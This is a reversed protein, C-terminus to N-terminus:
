GGTTTNSASNNDEDDPMYVAFAADILGTALTTVGTELSPGAVTRFEKGDLDCGTSLAAVAVAVLVALVKARSLKAFTKM